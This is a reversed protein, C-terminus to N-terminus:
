VPPAGMAMGKGLLANCRVEVCEWLVSVKSVPLFECGSETSATLGPQLACGWPWAPGLCLIWGERQELAQSM